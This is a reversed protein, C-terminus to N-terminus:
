LFGLLVLVAPFLAFLGVFIGIIIVWIFHLNTYKKAFKHSIFIGIIISVVVIAIYVLLVAYGNM